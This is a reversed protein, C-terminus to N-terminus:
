NQIISLHDLRIIERLSQEMECFKLSSEFMCAFHRPRFLIVLTLCVIYTALAFVQGIVVTNYNHDNTVSKAFTTQPLLYHNSDFALCSLLHPIECNQNPACGFQDVARSQIHETKVILM